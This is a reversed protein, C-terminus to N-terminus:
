YRASSHKCLSNDKGTSLIDGIRNEAEINTPLIRSILDRTYAAAVMAAFGQWEDSKHSDSYDCIGRVVLCPFHNMLGAAEMEFCLVDKETSLRDRTVADKMLSNGSAITGYHITVRDESVTRVHRTELNGEKSACFDACGRPDHAVDSKFLRDTEQPPRGHVQLLRSNKALVAEVTKELQHAKRIYQAQIGTMATQFTIPPQNLLGTHQFAQGQITKGFDYQFVGGLGNCPAGVVIDGLRIDHRKSPVGGGIGVMLGIRVNPFSHQMHAAVTAASSEGYIGSPLTAIVVKHEGIRGLTYDNTDASSVIKPPDHEEDLMEQAAVYETTLACIWGITYDNAESM